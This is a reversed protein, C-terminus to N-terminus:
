PGVRMSPAWGSRKVQGSTIIKTAEAEGRLVGNHTENISVFNSTGAAVAGPQNAPPTSAAMAPTVSHAGPPANKDQLYDLLSGLMAFPGEDSGGGGAEGSGSRPLWNGALSDSTGGQQFKAPKLMGARAMARMRFMEAHGGAKDVEDGTWVHESPAVLSLVSDVGRTSGSLWPVEGGDQHQTRQPWYKSVDMENTGPRTWVHGKPDLAGTDIAHQHQRQGIQWAALGEALPLDAIWAVPWKKGTVENWGYARREAAYRGLNGLGWAAANTAASQGIQRLPPPHLLPEGATFKRWFESLRAKGSALGWGTDGPTGGQDWHPLHWHPWDEKPGQGTRPHGPRDPPGPPRGPAPPAPPAPPPGGQRPPPPGGIPRYDKGYVGPEMQNTKTNFKGWNGDPLIHWEHDPGPDPVNDKGGQDDPHHADPQPPLPPAKGPPYFRRETGTGRMEWNPGHSHLYGGTDKDPADPPQNGVAPYVGQADPTEATGTMGGAGLDAASADTGGGDTGGDGGGFSGGGGGGGGKDGMANLLNIGWSAGGAFLKWIGWEWPPKAFVDGFGLEQGIGSVLGAGMAQANTDTGGKAGKGSEDWPTKGLEDLKQADINDSQSKRAKTVEGTATTLAKNAETQDKIAKGYPSDPGQAKIWIDRLEGPAPMDKTAAAYENNATTVAISADQQKGLAENLSDQDAKGAEVAKQYKVLWEGLDHAEQRNLGGMDPVDWPKMFSGYPTKIAGPTDDAVKVKSAWEPPADEAPSWPGSPDKDKHPWPAGPAAPASPKFAAMGHSDAQVGWTGIVTGGTPADYVKDGEIWGEKGPTQIRQTTHDDPGQGGQPAWPPVVGGTQLGLARSLWSPLISKLRSRLSAYSTGSRVAGSASGLSATGTGAGAATVASAFRRLKGTEEPTYSTGSMDAHGKPWWDIGRNYGSGEQHGAYTSAEVGYQNGLDYVWSPFGGKGQRIDTGKPLGYFKGTFPDSAFSTHVHGHHDNWDKGYYQPQSTGPGVRGYGAAEGYYEQTGPPNYIVQLVGTSAGTGGGGERRLLAGSNMAHLLGASAAGPPIVREGPETIIPIMGGGAYGPGMIRDLVDRYQASRHRNMIFTGPPVNMPVSDRGPWHEGKIHGGAAVGGDAMGKPQLMDWFGAHGEDGGSEPLTVGLQSLIGTLLGQLVGGKGVEGGRAYNRGGQWHAWAASPTGYRGKIYSMMASAQQYPTLAQADAVTHVGPFGNARYNSLTLQGLGVSNNGQQANIDKYNTATTSWGSEPGIINSVASFESAPFGGAIMGKWFTASTGPLGVHPALHSPSHYTLSSKAGGTLPGAGLAGGVAMGVFGGTAMAQRVQEQLPGGPGPSSDASSGAGGDTSSGDPLPTGAQLDLKVPIKIGSSDQLQSPIGVATMVGEADKRGVDKVDLNTPLAVGGMTVGGAQVDGQYKDPVGARSLTDSEGMPQPTVVHIRAPLTLGQGALGGAYAAPIGAAEVTGGDAFRQVVGGTALMEMPVTPLAGGGGLMANLTAKHRKSAEVPIVTEGATLMAPVDDIGGHGGYVTGGAQFLGLAGLLPALVPVQALLPIDAGERLRNLWGPSGHSEPKPPAPAQGGQGPSAPGFLNRVADKQDQPLDKIVLNLDVDFGHDVLESPVGHDKLFKKTDEPSLKMVDFKVQGGLQAFAEKGFAKNLYTQLDNMEQQTHATFGHIKGTAKDVDIDIGLHELEAKVSDIAAPDIKMDKGISGLADQIGKDRTIHGAADKLPEAFDFQFAKRFAAADKSHGVLDALPGELGQMANGLADVGTAGTRMISGIDLGLLAHLPGLATAAGDHIGKMTDSFPALAGSMNVIALDVLGAAIVVANKFVEVTGSMDKIMEALFHSIKAGWDLLKEGIAGVFGIFAGQNDRMWNALHDGVGSLATVLATGMPALAAKVQNALVEMENGLNKTAELAESIPDLLKAQNAQVAEAAEGVALPVGHELAHIWLEAAKAQNGFLPAAFQLAGAEDMRGHYDRIVANFQELTIGAKQLEEPLRALSFNFRSMAPKGLEENLKSVIFAAEDMNFGLQEWAPSQADLDRTLENIEVGTMRSLNIFKVLEENTDEPKINFSSFAATLNDVNIKTDGLLENGEALTTALQTLQQRSLGAGNGLGELRQSLEGVVDAVDKFHVLDGSGAIDRVVDLYDKLKDTGLTQGAISRAADQWQNGIDMLISSFEGAVSKYENVVAFVAGVAQTAEDAVMKFAQGIIPIHGVVNDIGTKMGNLPLMISTQAAEAFLGFAAQIDPMKGEVVSKFTGMFTEAADKGLKGFESVEDNVLKMVNKVSSLVLESGIVIGAAWGGAIKLGGALGAEGGLSTLMQEARGMVGALGTNLSEKLAGLMNVAITGATQAGVQSAGMKALTRDFVEVAAGGEAAEAAFVTGFDSWFQQAAQTGMLGAAKALTPGSVKSVAREMETLWGGIAQSAGGAWAAEMDIAGRAMVANITDIDTKAEGAMGSLSARVRTAMTAMQQEGEVGLEKFTDKIEELSPMVAQEAVAKLNGQFLRGVMDSAETGLNIGVARLGQQLQALTPALTADLNRLGIEYKELFGRSFIAGGVEGATALSKVLNETLDGGSLVQMGASIRRSLGSVFIDGGHVAVGNMVRGVAEAMSAGGLTSLGQALGAGYKEAGRLGAAGLAAELNATSVGGLASLGSAVRGTFSQSFYEGSRRGANGFASAFGERDALNSAASLGASFENMFNASMLKGANTGSAGFAHVIKDAHPLIRGVATAFATELSSSMASGAQSGVRSFTSSLTSGMGGVGQNFSGAFGAAAQRGIADMERYIGAASAAVDVWSVGQGAGPASM